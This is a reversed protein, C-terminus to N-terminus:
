GLMRYARGSYRFGGAPTLGELAWAMRQYYDGLTQEILAVIEM